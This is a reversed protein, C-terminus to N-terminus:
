PDDPSDKPESKKGLQRFLLSSLGIGGANSMKKSLEADLMSTFIEEAKGGSIFGSKNITKRLEKLLYNLFLSEMERCADKLKPDTQGAQSPNVSKFASDLRQQQYHQNFHFAAVSALPNKEDM